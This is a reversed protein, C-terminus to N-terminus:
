VMKTSRPQHSAGHRVKSRTEEGVLFVDSAEIATGDAINSVNGAKYANPLGDLRFIYRLEGISPETTADTALYIASVGDQFVYYQTLNFDANSAVAAVV